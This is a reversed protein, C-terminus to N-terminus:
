SEKEALALARNLRIMEPSHRDYIEWADPGRWAKIVERAEKLAAVLVEHSNVARLMFHANADAEEPEMTDPHWLIVAVIAGDADILSYPEHPKALKTYLDWPTPTHQQEGKSSM